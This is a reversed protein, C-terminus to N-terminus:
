FLETLVRGSSAPDGFCASAKFGSPRRPGGVLHNRTPALAKSHRPATLAHKSPGLAPSRSPSAGLSSGLPQRPTGPLRLQKQEEPAVPAFFAFRPSRLSSLSLFVAGPSCVTLIKTCVRDVKKHVSRPLSPRSVFASGPPVLFAFNHQNCRGLTECGLLQRLETAPPGRM